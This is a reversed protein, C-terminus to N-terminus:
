VDLIVLQFRRNALLEEAQRGNGATAVDCGKKRLLLSLMERVPPEDDIILIQPKM